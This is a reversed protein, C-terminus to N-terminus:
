DLSRCQLIRPHVNSTQTYTLENLFRVAVTFGDEGFGGSGVLVRVGNIGSAADTASRRTIPVATM